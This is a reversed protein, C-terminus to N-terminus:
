EHGCRVTTLNFQMETQEEDNEKITVKTMNYTKQLKNTNTINITCQKKQQQQQRNHLEQVTHINDKHTSLM